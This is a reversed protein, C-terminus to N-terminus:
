WDIVLDVWVLRHRSATAAMAAGQGESPWHVGSGAVTFDASPLIYSVRLHGPDPAPWAATDLAPPGTQGASQAVAGPRRPAPDQVRPDALLARIATKRGAGDAPDLNANGAIVFRGQPAPGFAGDLYHQWFAIEDHNRRGNRDEPGDFVPPSAHLTLIRVTRGRVSVPVVWHGVRSLRQAAAVEPTMGKPPIARPLDRWLLGSFDRVGATQVPFRSLIAMGGEGAFWGYGQKDEPEGRRGDGDLDLGTSMGTNPRLAFVFRYDPGARAIVDRLAALALREHDHDVGQLLLIDPAV